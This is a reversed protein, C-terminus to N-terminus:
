HEEAEANSRKERSKLLLLIIMMVLSGAMLAIWLVINANDGTQPAILAITVDEAVASALGLCFVAALIISLLKRTKMM